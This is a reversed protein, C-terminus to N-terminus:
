LVVTMGLKGVNSFDDCDQSTGCCGPIPEQGLSTTQRPINSAAVCDNSSPEYKM